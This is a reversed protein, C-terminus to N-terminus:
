DPETLGFQQWRPRSTGSSLEQGGPGQSAAGARPQSVRDEGGQPCYTRRHWAVFADTARYIDGYPGTETQYAVLPPGDFGEAPKPPQAGYGYSREIVDYLSSVNGGAGTKGNSSHTQNLSSIATATAKFRELARAYRDAVSDPAEPASQSCIL